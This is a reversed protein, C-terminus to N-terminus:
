SFTFTTLIAPIVLSIKSNLEFWLVSLEKCCFYSKLLNLHGSVRTIHGFVIESPLQLGM